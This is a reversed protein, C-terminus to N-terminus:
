EWRLWCKGYKPGMWAGQVFSLRPERRCVIGAAGYHRQRWIVPSTGAARVRNREESRCRSVGRRDTAVPRKLLWGIRKQLVANALLRITYKYGQAELFDYIDPNAYAADGRLYRRKVTERYRVVVPELVDRWVAASHANGPSLSSRELDGFQNITDRRTTYCRHGRCGPNPPNGNDPQWPPCASPPIM